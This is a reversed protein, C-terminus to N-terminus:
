KSQKDSIDAIVAGATVLVLSTMVYEFREPYVILAYGARTELESLFDALLTLLVVLVLPLCIHLIKAAAPSIGGVKERFFRKMKM